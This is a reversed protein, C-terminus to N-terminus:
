WFLSNVFSDKKWMKVFYICLGTHTKLANRKTYLVYFKMKILLRLCVLCRRLGTKKSVSVFNEDSICACRVPTKDNKVCLSACVVFLFPRSQHAWCSSEEIVSMLLYFLLSTSAGHISSFLVIWQKVFGIVM